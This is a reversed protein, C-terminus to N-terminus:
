DPIFGSFLPLKPCIFPIIHTLAIKHIHFVCPCVRASHFNQHSEYQNKFSSFLPPCRSRTRASQGTYRPGKQVTDFIQFFPFISHLPSIRIRCPKAIAYRMREFLRGREHSDGALPHPLDFFLSQRLELSSEPPAVAYGTKVTQQSPNPHTRIDM